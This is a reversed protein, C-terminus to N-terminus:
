TLRWAFALAFFLAVLLALVFVPRHEDRYGFAATM